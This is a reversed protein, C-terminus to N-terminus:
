FQTQNMPYDCSLVQCILVVFEPVKTQSKQELQIEGVRFQALFLYRLECSYAAKQPNSLPLRSPGSTLLIAISRLFPSLFANKSGQIVASHSNM